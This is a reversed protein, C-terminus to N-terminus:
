RGRFRVFKRFVFLRSRSCVRFVARFFIIILCVGIFMEVEFKVAESDFVFCRYVFSEVVKRDGSIGLGTVAYGTM